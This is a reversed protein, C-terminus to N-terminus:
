LLLTYTELLAMTPRILLESLFYNYDHWGSLYDQNLIKRVFGAILKLNIKGGASVGDAHVCLCLHFCVQCVQM